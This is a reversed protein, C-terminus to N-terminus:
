KRYLNNIIRLGNNPKYASGSSIYRNGFYIDFTYKNLYEWVRIDRYYGSPVNVNIAWELENKKGAEGGIKSEIIEKIKLTVNGHIQWYSITKASLNFDIPGEIRYPTGNSEVYATPHIFKWNRMKYPTTARTIADIEESQQNSHSCNVWDEKHEEPIFYTVTRAVLEGKNPEQYQQLTSNDTTTIEYFTGSGNKTVNMLAGDQKLKELEEISINDDKVECLNESEYAYCDKALFGTTITMFLFMMIALKKRM